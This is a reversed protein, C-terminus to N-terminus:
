LKGTVLLVTAKLAPVFTLLNVIVFRVIPTHIIVPTVIYTGDDADVIQEVLKDVILAVLSLALAIYLKPLPASVQLMLKVHTM